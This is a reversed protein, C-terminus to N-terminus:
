YKKTSKYVLINLIYTISNKEWTRNTFQSSQRAFKKKGFNFTTEINKIFYKTILSINCIFSETEELLRLYQRNLSVKLELGISMVPDIRNSVHKFYCDDCKCIM